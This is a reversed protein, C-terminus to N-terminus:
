SEISTSAAQFGRGRPISRNIRRGGAQRYISPKFTRKIRSGHLERMGKGLSLNSAPANCAIPTEHSTNIWEGKAQPCGSDSTGHM